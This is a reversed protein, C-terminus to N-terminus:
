DDLYDDTEADLVDDWYYHDSLDADPHARHFQQMDESVRRAEDNLDFEGHRGIFDDSVQGGKWVDDLWTKGGWLGSGRRSRGSDGDSFSADSCSSPGMGFSVGTDHTLGDVVAIPLLPVLVHLAMSLWINEDYGFSPNMKFVYTWHTNIDYEMYLGWKALGFPLLLFSALTLVCVVAMYWKQRNQKWKETSFLAFSQVVGAFLVWTGKCLFWLVKGHSAVLGVVLLALLPWVWIAILTNRLPHHTTNM